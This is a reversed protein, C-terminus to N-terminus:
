LLIKEEFIYILLYGVGLLQIVMRFTAYIIETKNNTLRVYYIYVLSLPILAYLLNLLSITKM